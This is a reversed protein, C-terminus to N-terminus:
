FIQFISPQHFIVHSADLIGPSDFYKLSDLIYTQRSFNNIELMLVYTDGHNSSGGTGNETLFYYYLFHFMGVLGLKM